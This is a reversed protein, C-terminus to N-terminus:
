FRAASRMSSPSAMSGGLGAQNPGPPLVFNRQAKPSIRAGHTPWILVPM